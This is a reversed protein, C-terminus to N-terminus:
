ILELYYKDNDMINNLFENLSDAIKFDYYYVANKKQNGLEISMFATENAEFFVLKNNEFERYIEISPIFEFDNIGLRFDRISEPDMIRNINFESGKVFGYGIEEFFNKLEMPFQLELEREVHEIDEKILKYFKNENNEKVFHFNM